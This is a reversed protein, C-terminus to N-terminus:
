SSGMYKVAANPRELTSSPGHQKGKGDCQRWAQWKETSKSVILGGSSQGEQVDGLVSNVFAYSQFISGQVHLDLGLGHVECVRM